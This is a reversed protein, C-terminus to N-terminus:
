RFFIMGVLGAERGRADAGLGRGHGEDPPVPVRGRLM